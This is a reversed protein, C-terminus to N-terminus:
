SARAEQLIRELDRFLKDFSPARRRMGSRLSLAATLLAQHTTEKYPEGRILKLSRKPSSDSEPDGRDAYFAAGPLVSRARLSAFDALIWNEYMRKAVVVSLPVSTDVRQARGLLAPGLEAPCDDDADLMVVIAALHDARLAAEVFREVGLMRQRDLPCVLKSKGKTNIAPDMAEFFRAFGRRALWRNVLIPAARAEGDGEVICAISRKKM